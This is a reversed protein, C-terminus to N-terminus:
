FKFNFGTTVSYTNGVNLKASAATTDAEDDSIRQDYDGVGQYQMGTFLSVAPTLNLRARADFFGGFLMDGSVDERLVGTRLDTRVPTASEDVDTTDPDDTLTEETYLSEATRFRSSLYVVAVGAGADLEFFRSVPISVTPGLRWSYQASKITYTGEVNAGDAVDPLFERDELTDNLAPAGPSSPGDPPVIDQDFFRYTDVYTQLDVTFNRTEAVEAGSVGLGSFLGWGVRGLKGLERGYRFEMGLNANADLGAIDEGGIAGYANYSLRYFGDAGLSLQEERLYSYDSTRGDESGPRVIGSDPGYTRSIGLEHLPQTVDGMEEVPLAFTGVNSIDFSAGFNIAAGISFSNKPPSPLRFPLFQVPRPENLPASAVETQAPLTPVAAWLSAALSLSLRLRM